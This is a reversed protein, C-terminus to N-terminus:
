LAHDGAGGRWPLINPRGRWQVPATSRHWLAYGPNFCFFACNPNGFSM